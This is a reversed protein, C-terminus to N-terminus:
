TPARDLYAFQRNLVERFKEDNQRRVSVPLQDNEPVRFSKCLEAFKDIAAMECPTIDIFEEGNEDTKPHELAEIIHDWNVKTVDDDKWRMNEEM